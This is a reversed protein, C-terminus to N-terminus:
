SLGIAAKAEAWTYVEGAPKPGCAAVFIEAFSTSWKASRAYGAGMVVQSDASPCGTLDSRWAGLVNDRHGWCQRAKPATCDGNHSGFGDDYMWSDDSGLASESGGAWNSGWARIEAGGSLTRASLSPDGGDDAGAQAAKDLQITLAAIPPEGRSVRELDAIAFLQDAVSLRLFRALTFRLPGIPETARARDIAQLAKSNCAATDDLGGVACYAYFNPAPPLNKPPNRPPVIGTRAMALVHPLAWTRSAGGALGAAAEARGGAVAITVLAAVFMAARSVRSVLTGRM